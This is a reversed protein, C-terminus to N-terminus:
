SLLRRVSVEGMADKMETVVRHALIVKNGGHNHQPDSNSVIADNKTTLRAQYKSSQYYKCRWQISGNVYQRHRLFEYQKHILPPEGKSAVGFWVKNDNDNM